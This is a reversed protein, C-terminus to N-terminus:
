QNVDRQCGGHYRLNGRRGRVNGVMPVLGEETGPNEVM